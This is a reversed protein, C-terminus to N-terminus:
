GGSHGRARLREALPRFGVRAGVGVVLAALLAGPGPIAFSVAVVVVIIVAVVLAAAQRDYRDKTRQTAQADMPRTDALGVIPKANASRISM